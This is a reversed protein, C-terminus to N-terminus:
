KVEVNTLYGDRQAQEMGINAAAMCREFGLKTGFPSVLGIKLLQPRETASPTAWLAMILGLLM